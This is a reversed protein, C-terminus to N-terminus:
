CKILVLFTCRNFNLNDFVITCRGIILTSVFAIHRQLYEKLIESSSGVASKQRSLCLNPTFQFRVEEESPQNSNQAMAECSITICRWVCPNMYQFEYHTDNWQYFAGPFSQSCADSLVRFGMHRCCCQFMALVDTSFVPNEVELTIDFTATASANEGRAINAKRIIYPFGHFAFCMKLQMSQDDQSILTSDCLRSFVNEPSKTEWSITLQQYQENQKQHKQQKQQEQKQNQSIGWFMDQLSIDEFEHQFWNAIWWLQSNRITQKTPTATTAKVEAVTTMSTM